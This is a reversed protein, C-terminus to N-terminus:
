RVAISRIEVPVNRIVTIPKGEPTYVGVSRDLALYIRGGADFAIATPQTILAITPTTRRGDPLYTTVNYPSGNGVYIKGNADIAIALPEGVGDKM